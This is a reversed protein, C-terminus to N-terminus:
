GWYGGQDLLIWIVLVDAISWGMHYNDRKQGHLLGGCIFQLVLLTMMITQPWNMREGRGEEGTFEPM